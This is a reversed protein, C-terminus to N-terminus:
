SSGPPSAAARPARSRSSAPTASRPAPPSPGEAPGRADKVAHLRRDAARMLASAESGDPGVLASVVTVSIPPLDERTSWTGRERLEAELRAAGAEGARPAVVAFEDGGIRCLRDNPRLVEGLSAAVAVLVRDGTPHGYLDNVQKFRDLDIVLLAGPLAHGPAAAQLERDLLSDFARRNGVGTLPDTLAMERQVREASVLRGRLWLTVGALVVGTIALTVYSPLYGQEVATGDYILPAALALLFLVLMLAVIRWSFFFATFLMPLCLLPPAYSAAGGTIWQVLAVLPGTLLLAVQHQWMPLRGWPMLGTLSAISYVFGYAAVALAWHPHFEGATPVVMGVLLVLTMFLWLWGATHGM